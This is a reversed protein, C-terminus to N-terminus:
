KLAKQIRYDLDTKPTEDDLKQLMETTKLSQNPTFM